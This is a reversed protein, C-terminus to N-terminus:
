SLTAPPGAFWVRYQGYYKKLYAAADDGSIVYVSYKGGFGVKHGVASMNGRLYNILNKSVGKKIAADGNKELDQTCIVGDKPDIDLLDFLEAGLKDMEEAAKMGEMIQWGISRSELWAATLYSLGIAAIGAILPGMHSEGHLPWYLGACVLATIVTGIFAARNVASQGKEAGLWPTAWGAFGGLMLGVMGGLVTIAYYVIELDSM